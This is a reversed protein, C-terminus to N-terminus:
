RVGSDHGLRRSEASAPLLRWLQEVIRRLALDDDREMAARGDRVLTQARVLDTANHAESAAHEFAWRWAEPDRYYAANALNNVVRLQRELAAADRV